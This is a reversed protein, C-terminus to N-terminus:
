VWVVIPSYFVFTLGPGDGAVARESRGAGMPWVLGVSEPRGSATARSLASADGQFGQTREQRVRARVDLEPERSGDRVAEFGVFSGHRLALGPFGAGGGVGAEFGLEPGGGVREAVVHVRRLVLVDDEPPDEERVDLVGEFRLVRLEFRLPGLAGVGLVRVLVARRAEEPHRLLRASRVQLGAGQPGGEALEHVVGHVGDLAAVRRELAHQGVVVRPRAEVLLAEALEDVQDGVDAEATGGVARLVDQAADVLVEEGRERAGLPLLGATRCARARPARAASGSAGCWTPSRSCSRGRLGSRPISPRGARAYCREFRPSLERLAADRSMRREPWLHRSMGSQGQDNGRM